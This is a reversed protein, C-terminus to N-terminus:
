PKRSVSKGSVRSILYEKSIADGTRYGAQMVFDPAEGGPNYDTLMWDFYVGTILSNTYDASAQATGGAIPMATFTITNENIKEFSASLGASLLLWSGPLSSGFQIPTSIDPPVSYKNNGSWRNDTQSHAPQLVGATFLSLMLVFALKPKSASKVFNASQKALSLFRNLYTSQYVILQSKM